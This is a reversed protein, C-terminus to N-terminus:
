IQNFIKVEEQANIAYHSLHHKVEKIKNASSSRMPLTHHHHHQHHHPFVQASMVSQSSPINAFQQNHQIPIQQQPPLPPPPMMMWPSNSRSNNLSHPNTTNPSACPPSSIIMNTIPQFAQLHLSQSPPIHAPYLPMQQSIVQQSISGSRSMSNSRSNTTLQENLRKAESIVNAVSVVASTTNKVKMPGNLKEETQAVVSPPNAASNNVDSQQSETSILTATSSESSSSLETNFQLKEPQSKQENTQETTQKKLEPDPQKQKAENPSKHRNRNPSNSDNAIAISSNTLNSYFFSRLFSSETVVKPLGAIKSCYDAVLPFEKVFDEKQNEKFVLQCTEM